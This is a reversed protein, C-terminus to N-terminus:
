NAIAPVVVDDLLTILEDGLQLLVALDDTKAAALSALPLCADSDDLNPLSKAKTWLGRAHRKALM